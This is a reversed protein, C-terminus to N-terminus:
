KREESGQEDCLEYYTLVLGAHEGISPHRNRFGHGHMYELIEAPPDLGVPIPQKRM